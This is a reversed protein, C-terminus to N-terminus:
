KAVRLIGWLGQAVAWKLVGSRYLYDGPTANATFDYSRVTGSSLAGESSVVPSAIGRHPWERWAHGHLTFSHNRPKDAACILRLSVDSGAPVTFVPTAPDPHFWQEAIMSARHQLFTRDLRESRYNFAKQGQDETDPVSGIGMDGPIDPPNPVDPGCPAAPAFYRIGDHLVLVIEEQRHGTRQHVLTARSGVWAQEPSTATTAGPNVAFPTVDGPEVVLTGILGHHRHNRVDALDQLLVPGPPLDAHFKVTRSRRRGVTQLPNDGASVGDSTKVDYSLLDAHLSIHTSIPPKNRDGEVPLAPPYCEAVLTEPLCNEVAIEVWEGQRCRIILPEPAEPPPLAHLHWSWPHAMHTAVFMLGDPDVLSAGARDRYTIAQAVAKVRYRRCLLSPMPLPPLSFRPGSLPWIAPKATDHGFLSNDHARILGWCGLWTDEAGSCRWLYDGCGYPQDVVFTFGESIGLTQQNRLPSEPDKRFRHWRMGHVQFSHQEEHSGQVLRIHIPEGAYTEFLTTAPDGQVKSSFWLEPNDGRKTLPASRYNVCMSGNDEHSGPEDPGEIACGQEDYMAMWDGIGFCFERFRSGDTREIVAQLGAVIEKAPDKPDLFKSGEPEVLLAGFLGHRQRTNAFLHDHCFIVGFEEDCWWRYVMRKGSSPASMYNWGTSAGDACIPDFKVLHVHLGCEAPVPPNSGAVIIEDCPPINIDFDMREFEGQTPQPIPTHNEACIPGLPNRFGLQNTLTLNLVEGQRARFFLPERVDTAPAGELTYFHGDPDHWHDNFDIRGREVNIDYHRDAPKDHRTLLTESRGDRDPDGFLSIQEPHPFLTFLEGPKRDFKDLDMATRELATAPRYDFDAPMDQDKLPWPPVPSKQKYQGAIFLPFGPRTKSPAPPSARDPLVALKGIPSGDPYQGLRRGAYESGELADGLEGNQLTDFSRLIGWMGMHFHPYLHCHWIVDGPVAQVNGAAFLPQITHGTGPTISIADILPSRPNEPDAYWEYVHLHFVHTEKVGAHILRIRIPDGLYARLVPTDPDGFLWSSHHQEENIVTKQLQGKQKLWHWLKRERNKMPESRYNFLMLSGGPFAEEHGAAPEHTAEEPDTCHTDPECHAALDAFCPGEKHSAVQPEDNDGHTHPICAKLEKAEPEDHIFLVYERFSARPHPHKPPRTSGPLGAFVPKNIAALEAPTRLHVDAYLGDALPASPDNYELAPNTWWATEPEVILAGFLGHTNTGNEGGDPDGMDHFPFVGEHECQWIYTRSAEPPVLSSANSGVFSGDSDVDYGPGILHIGVSRERIRNTLEVKVTDGKRARLVLPRVLDQVPSTPLPEDTTEHGCLPKPEDMLRQFQAGVDLLAQQSGSLAYILGNPDHDGYKNFQIPLSIAVVKYTWTHTDADYHVDPRNAHLQM